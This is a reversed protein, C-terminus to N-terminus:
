AEDVDGVKKNEAFQALYTKVENNALEISQDNVILPLNRKLSEFHHKFCKYYFDRSSIKKNYYDIVNQQLKDGVQLYYIISNEKNGNLVLPQKKYNQINIIAIDRMLLKDEILLKLGELNQNVIAIDFPTRSKLNKVFLFTERELLAKVVPLMKSTKMAKHLPTSGTMNLSIIPSGNEIFLQAVDVHENNIAAHLPTNGKDYTRLELNAHAEILKKAMNYNGVVACTYIPTWGERNQVNIDGGLSQYAILDVGVDKDKKLIDVLMANKNLLNSLRKKYNQIVNTKFRNPCDNFNNANIIQQFYSKQDKELWELSSLRGPSTESFAPRSKFFHLQIM